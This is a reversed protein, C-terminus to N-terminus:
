EWADFICGYVTLRSFCDAKDRPWTNCNGIINAALMVTNVFLHAIGPIPQLHVKSGSPYKILCTTSM